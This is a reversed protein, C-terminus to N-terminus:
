RSDHPYRIGLAWHLYSPSDGTTWVAGDSTITGTWRASAVLQTNWAVVWGLGAGAVWSPDLQEGVASAKEGTASALVLRERASVVGGGGELLWEAQSGLARRYQLLGHVATARLRRNLDYPGAGDTFPLGNTNAQDVFQFADDGESGFYAVRAGLVWHRRVGLSATIAFGPGSSVLSSLEAGNAAAVTGQPSYLVGDVQLQFGPVGSQAGAAAPLLLTALLAIIHRCSRM